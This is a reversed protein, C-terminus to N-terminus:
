SNNQAANIASTLIEIVPSDPAVRQLENKANIAAGCLYNIMPEIRNVILVNEHFGKVMGNHFIAYRKGDHAIIEFIPKSM